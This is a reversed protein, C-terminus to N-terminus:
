SKILQKMKPPIPIEVLKGENLSFFYKTARLPLSKSIVMADKDTLSDAVIIVMLKNIGLSALKEQLRNLVFYLASYHEKNVYKIEVARLGGSFTTLLGDLILPKGTSSTLKVHPRYIERFESILLTQVMDEVEVRKKYREYADRNITNPAPKVVGEEIVTNEAPAVVEDDGVNKVQIESQSAETTVVDGKVGDLGVGTMRHKIFHAIADHQRFILLLGIILISAPWSTLILRIYEDFIGVIRENSFNTYILSILSAFFVIIAVFLLIGLVTTLFRILDRFKPQKVM